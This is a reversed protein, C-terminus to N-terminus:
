QGSSSSEDEEILPIIIFESPAIMQDNNQDTEVFLLLVDPNANAEDRSIMGDGNTDLQSFVQDRTQGKKVKMGRKSASSGASGNSANPTVSHDGQTTQAQAPFTCCLVLAASALVGTVKM